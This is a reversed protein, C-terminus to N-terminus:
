CVQPRVRRLRAAWGAMDWEGPAWPTV